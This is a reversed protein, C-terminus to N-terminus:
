HTRPWRVECVTAVRGAFELDTPQSHRERAKRLGAFVAVVAVRRVFRQPHRRFSRDSFAPHGPRAWAKLRRRASLQNLAVEAAEELKRVWNGQPLHPAQEGQSFFVPAEEQWWHRQMWLFTRWHPHM